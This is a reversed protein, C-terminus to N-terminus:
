ERPVLLELTEWSSDRIQKELTSYRISPACERLRSVARPELTLQYRDAGDRYSYGAYRLVGSGALEMVADWFTSARFMRREACVRRPLELRISPGKLVAAVCLERQFPRDPKPDPFATLLLGIDDLSAEMPAWRFRSAGSVLTGRLLLERVRAAQKGTLGLMLGVLERLPMDRVVVQSISIAGADESSLKVRVTDPLPM